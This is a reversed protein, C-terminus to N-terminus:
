THTPAIGGRGGYAEMAHLSVAKSKVYVSHFVSYWLIHQLLVMPVFLEQVNLFIALGVVRVSSLFLLNLRIM